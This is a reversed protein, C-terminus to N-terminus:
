RPDAGVDQRGARAGAGQRTGNMGSVLTGPTKAVPSTRWPGPLCTAVVTLSPVIVTM